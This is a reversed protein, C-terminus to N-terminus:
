QSVSNIKVVGSFLLIFYLSAYGVLTTTKSKKNEAFLNLRLVYLLSTFTELLIDHHEFRQSHSHASVV